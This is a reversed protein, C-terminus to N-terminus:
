LYFKERYDYVELSLIEVSINSKYRIMLKLAVQVVTIFRKISFLNSTHVIENSFLTLKVKGATLQSNHLLVPKMSPYLKVMVGSEVVDVVQATYVGGFDM